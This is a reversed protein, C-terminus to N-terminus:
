CGGSNDVIVGSKIQATFSLAEAVLSIVAQKGLPSPVM